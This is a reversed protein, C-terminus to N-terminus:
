FGAANGPGPGGSRGNNAIVRRARASGSRRPKSPPKPRWTRSTELQVPVGVDSLLADLSEKLQRGDTHRPHGCALKASDDGGVLVVKLTLTAPLPDGEYPEIISEVLDIRALDAIPMWPEPRGARILRFRPPDQALAFQVRRVRRLANAVVFLLAVLLGAVAVLGAVFLAESFDVGFTVMFVLIVNGVCSFLLLMRMLSALAVLVAHGRSGGTERFVLDTTDGDPGPRVLEGPTM